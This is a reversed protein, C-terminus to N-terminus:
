GKRRHLRPPLAGLPRRIQPLHPLPCHLPRLLRHELRCATEQMHARRTGPRPLLELAQLRPLPRRTQSPRRQHRPRRRPRSRTRQRLRHLHPTLLQAKQRRPFDAAKPSSCSCFAILYSVGCAGDFLRYGTKIANYVQEACTDNNVKWLGFGVIPMEKGNNLKITSPSM